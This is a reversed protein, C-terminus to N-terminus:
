LSLSSPVSSVFASSALLEVVLSGKNVGGLGLVEQSTRPIATRHQLDIKATGMSDDSSWRDYDVVKMSLVGGDPPVRVMFRENCVPDVSNDIAITRLEICPVIFM